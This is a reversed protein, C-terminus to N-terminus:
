WSPGLSKAHACRDALGTTVEVLDGVHCGTALPALVAQPDRDIPAGGSTCTRHARRSSHCSAGGRRWRGSRIPAGGLVSSRLPPVFHTLLNRDRHDGYM